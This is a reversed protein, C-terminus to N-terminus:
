SEKQTDERTVPVPQGCAPCPEHEPILWSALLGSGIAVLVVAIILMVQVSSSM